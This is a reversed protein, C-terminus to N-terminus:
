LKQERKICRHSGCGDFYLANEQGRFTREYTKGTLGRVVVGLGGRWPWGSM